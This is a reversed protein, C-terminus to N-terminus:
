TEGAPKEPRDWAVRQADGWLSDLDYYARADQNFVHVVVDVFDMLIWNGAGDDSRSLARHGLPEAMEDVDDVASRMQRPSTGTAIVMFDTVPSLGSVDLVAVNHCRTDALMRAADIALQRAPISPV